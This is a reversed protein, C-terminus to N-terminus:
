SVALVYDARRACAIDLGLRSLANKVAALARRARWGPGALGSTLYARVTHLQHILEANHGRVIQKIRPHARPLWTMTKPYRPHEMLVAEIGDLDAGRLTALCTDDRAGRLRLEDRKIGRAEFYERRGALDKTPGLFANEPRCAKESLLHLVRTVPGSAAPVRERGSM